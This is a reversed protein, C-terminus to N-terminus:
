SAEKAAQGGPTDEHVQCCGKKSKVLPLNPLLVTPEETRIQTQLKWLRPFLTFSVQKLREEFVLSALRLVLSLVAM